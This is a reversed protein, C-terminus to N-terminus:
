NERLASRHRCESRLDALSAFAARPFKRGVCSNASKAVCEHVGVFKSADLSFRCREFLSSFEPESAVQPQLREFEERRFGLLCFPNALVRFTELNSIM